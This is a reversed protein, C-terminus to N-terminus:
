RFKLDNDNYGYKEMLIKDTYEMNFHHHNTIAKDARRFYIAYDMKKKDVPRGNLINDMQDASVSKKFYPRLKM